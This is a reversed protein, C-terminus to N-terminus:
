PLSASNEPANSMESKVSVSAAVRKEMLVRWQFFILPLAVRHSDFKKSQDFSHCNIIM